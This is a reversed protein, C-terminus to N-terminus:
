TAARGSSGREAATHAGGVEAFAGPERPPVGRWARGAPLAKGAGRRRGARRVEAGSCFCVAFKPSRGGEVGLGDGRAM